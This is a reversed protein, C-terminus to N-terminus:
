PPSDTEELVIGNARALREIEERMQRDLRRRLSWATAIKKAAEEKRGQMAFVVAQGAIGFAQFEEEAPGLEALETFIRLALQLDERQLYHRALEQKARRAYYRNTANKEPPFHEWVSKWADEKRVIKAYVFQAEASERREVKPGADDPDTALLHRRQTTWALAAGFLIALLIGVAVQALRRRLPLRRVVEMSATKMLADLRQTAELSSGTSAIMEPVSLDALSEAWPAGSADAALTRLDRLLEGAHEHRDGPSKAMM